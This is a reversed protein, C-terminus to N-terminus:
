CPRLSGNTSNVSPHWGTPLAHKESVSEAPFVLPAVVERLLNPVVRGALVDVLNGFGDLLAETPLETLPSVRRPPVM